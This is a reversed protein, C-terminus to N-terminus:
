KESLGCYKWIMSIQERQDEINQEEHHDCKIRECNFICKCKALIENLQKSEVRVTEQANPVSQDNIYACLQETRVGGPHILLYMTSLIALRVDSLSLVDEM